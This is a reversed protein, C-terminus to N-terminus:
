NNSQSSSNHKSETFIFFSYFIYSRDELMRCESQTRLVHVWTAFSPNKPTPSGKMSKRKPRSPTLWLHPLHANFTLIGWSKVPHFHSRLVVSPHNAHHTWLTTRSHGPASPVSNTHLMVQLHAKVEVWTFSLLECKARTRHYHDEM